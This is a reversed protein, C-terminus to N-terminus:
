SDFFSKPFRLTRELLTQQIDLLMEQHFRTFLFNQLLGGGMSVLSIGVMLLLVWPLLALTKGLIVRDILFQTILPQPFSLLPTVLLLVAGVVGKRWHRLFFPWLNKLNARIPRVGEDLALSDKPLERSLGSKLYQFWSEM